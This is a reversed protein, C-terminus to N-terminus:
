CPRSRRIMNEVTEGLLINRMRFFQVPESVFDIKLGHPLPWNPAFFKLRGGVPISSAELSFSSPTILYRQNQRQSGSQQGHSSPNTNHSGRYNHGGRSFQDGRFSREPCLNPGGSRGPTSASKLANADRAAKIM